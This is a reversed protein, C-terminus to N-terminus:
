FLRLHPVVAKFGLRHSQGLQFDVLLRAHLTPSPGIPAHAHRWVQLCPVASPGRQSHYVFRRWAVVLPSTGARAWASFSTKVTYSRTQHEDRTHKGWPSRVSTGPPTSTLLPFTYQRQITFIYMDIAAPDSAWPERLCLVAYRPCSLIIIVTSTCFANHIPTETSWPGSLNTTDGTNFFQREQM